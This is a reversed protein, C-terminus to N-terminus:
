SGHEERLLIADPIDLGCSVLAKLVGARKNLCVAVQPHDGGHIREMIQIAEAYKREAQDYDGQAFPPTSHCSRLGPDNLAPM